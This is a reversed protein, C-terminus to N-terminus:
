VGSSYGVDIEVTLDVVGVVVSNTGVRWSGVVASLSSKVVSVSPYMIM